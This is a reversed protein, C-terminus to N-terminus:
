WGGAGSRELFQAGVNRHRRGMPPCGRQGPKLDQLQKKVGGIEQWSAALEPLGRRTDGHVVPLDPEGPPARQETSCRPPFMEHPFEEAEETLSFLLGSGDGPTKGASGPQECAAAVLEAGTPHM